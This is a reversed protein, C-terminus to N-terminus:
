WRKTLAAGGVMGRRLVLAMGEGRGAAASLLMEQEPVTCSGGGQEERM